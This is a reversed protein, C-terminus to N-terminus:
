FRSNLFNIFRQKSLNNTFDSVEPEMDLYKIDEERIGIDQMLAFLNNIEDNAYGLIYKCYLSSWTPYGQYYIYENALIKRLEIASINLVEQAILGLACNCTDWWVYNDIKKTANHLIHDLQLM